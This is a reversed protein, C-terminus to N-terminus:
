TNRGSKMLPEQTNRPNIERISPKMIVAVGFLLKKCSYDDPFDTKNVVLSKLQFESEPSHLFFARMKTVQTVDISFETLYRM